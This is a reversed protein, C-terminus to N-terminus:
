ALGIFRGADPFRGSWRVRDALAEPIPRRVHKAPVVIERLAPHDALPALDVTAANKPLHLRELAPLGAAASLDVVRAGRLSLAELTAPAWDLDPAHLNQVSLIRLRLAHFPTLDVKMGSWPGRLELAELSPPLGAVDQLARLNWATLLRLAPLDAGTFTKLQPSLLALRELQPQALGALSAPDQPRLRRLTPIPPLTALDPAGSLSLVRLAPLRGLPALDADPAVALHVEELHELGALPALSRVGEGGQSLHRLMALAELGELRAPGRGLSLLELRTAGALWRLDDAEVEALRLERLRACAGVAGFHEAKAGDGVSLSELNPFRAMPALSIPAPGHRRGSATAGRLTLEVAAERLARAGTAADPADAALRRALEARLPLTAKAGKLRAGPEFDHTVKTGKLLHDVLAPDAAERVHRAIAEVREPTPANLLPAILDWAAAGAESLGKPTGRRAPRKRKKKASKASRAGLVRLDPRQATSIAWRLAAPFSEPELPCGAIAIARLDFGELASVDQLQACGRLDLVRLTDRLGQIGELTELGRCAQLDLHVTGPANGLGELSRLEPSRFARQPDGPARPHGTLSALRHGSCRFRELPKEALPALTTPAGQLDLDALAPLAAVAALDTPIAHLQRLATFREARELALQGADLRALSPLETAAHLTLPAQYSPAEISVLAPLEALEVRCGKRSDLRLHELRPCAAVRVEPGAQLTLTRCALGEFRRVRPLKLHAADLRKMARLPTLDALAGSTLELHRLSLAGLAAVDRLPGDIVLLELRPAGELGSLDELETNRLTLAELTPAAGLGAIGGRLVGPAVHLTRLAPLAGLAGVGEVPGDVWVLLERLADLGVLLSLDIGEPFPRQELRLTQIRPRLAAAREGAGRAILALVALEGLLRAKKPLKGFVKGLSVRGYPGDPPRRWRKREVDGAPDYDVDELLADVVAGDDLALALEVGTRVGDLTRGLLHKKLKALTTRLTAM